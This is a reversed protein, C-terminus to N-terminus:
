LQSVSHWEGERGGERRGGREGGEREGGGREGGGGERERERERKREREKERERQRSLQRYGPTVGKGRETDSITNTDHIYINKFSLHSPLFFSALLTLCVFLAFCCLVGLATLKGLFFSSGRTPSSGM